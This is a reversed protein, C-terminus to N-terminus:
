AAGHPRTVRAELRSRITEAIAEDEIEALAEALFALVLLGEAEGRPIGRARLYFLAAEDIAGATSGHSCKVDDAYIELEPKALFQAAEDLLLAQSLQYGDTKQAEPLVHIKGQFVGVAGGSLVKKFVQRSECGPAAHRVFLTDDHHVDGAGLAAGALHAVAGEGALEVFAENRSLRGDVGLTFSRLQAGRGLRAFLHTVTREGQGPVQARVHHLRAGEGLEVETLICSRAGAAGEELLTLEAGPELRLVHHLIADTAGGRHRYVIAVPRAARGTVRLLLGDTAAATALAAFPRPVPAQARAELAGYLERAWHIDAAGGEALREIVVGALAPDDSAAADFAGDTFVLRLREIGDFLAPAATGTAAPLPEVAAAALPAPDTFRWYEDRRGPLGMALLRERAAERAARAWAGAPPLSLAELRSPGAARSAPRAPM